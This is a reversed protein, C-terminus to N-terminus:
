LKCKHRIYHTDTRTTKRIHPIHVNVDEYVHIRFLITRCLHVHLRSMKTVMVLIM